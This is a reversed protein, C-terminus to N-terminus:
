QAVPVLRREVGDVLRQEGAVDAAASSAMLEGLNQRPRRRGQRREGLAVGPHRERDRHERAGATSVRRPQHRGEFSERQDDPLPHDGHRLPRPERQLRAPDAGHQHRDQDPAGDRGLTAGVLRDGGHLAAAREHRPQHLFGHGLDFCFHVGGELSQPLPSSTAARPWLRQCAIKPTSVAVVVGVVMFSVMM